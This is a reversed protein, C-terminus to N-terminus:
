SSVLVSQCKSHPLLGQTTDLTSSFHLASTLLPQATLFPSSSPSVNEGRGDWLLPPTLVELDGLRWTSWASTGPATAPGRPVAAAVAKAGWPRGAPFTERAVWAGAARQKSQSLSQLFSIRPRQPAFPDQATTHAHHRQEGETRGALPSQAPEGREKQALRPVLILACGPRVFDTFRLPAAKQQLKHPFGM